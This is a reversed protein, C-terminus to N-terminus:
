FEYVSICHIECKYLSSIYPHAYISLMIYINIQTHPLSLSLTSSNSNTISHPNTCHLSRLWDIRTAYESQHACRQGFAERVFRSFMYITSLKCEEVIMYQFKLYMQTVVTCIPLTSDQNMFKLYTLTKSNRNKKILNKKM